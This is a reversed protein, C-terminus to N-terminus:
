RTGAAKTATKSAPKKAPVSVRKDSTKKTASDQKQVKAQPHKGSASKSSAAATPKGKAAAARTLPKPNPKSAPASAARSARPTPRPSAEAGEDAEAETQDGVEPVTPFPARALTLVLPGGPTQDEVLQPRGTNKSWRHKTFTQAGASGCVAILLCVLAVRKVIQEGLAVRHRAIM